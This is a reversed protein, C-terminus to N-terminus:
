YLNLPNIDFQINIQKLLEDRTIQNQAMDRCLKLEHEEKAKIYIVKRYSDKEKSRFAETPPLVIVSNRKLIETLRMAGEMVLMEDEHECVAVMMAGFPPYSMMKRYLREQRYFCEYDQSAASTIAYHEPQYTQIIALGEKRGRGARGAAQTLLQFTRESALYDGSFMSLDAALVGVLTVNPFDHGKVIMQTGVLIDAEGRAFAQFTEFHSNKRQFADRDARLIRASPFRKQLLEVVKQTGMGFAGIYKSGCEPCTKPAPIHYGCYHCQMSDQMNKHLTLSVDCHPCTIVKGCSRCSVFGAYGRRNLFLLIQEKKALRDEMARMLSRSFVSYNKAKLEERLDVIEAVAMRGEGSVRQKLHYIGYIGQRAQEYSVISPTASGLVVKGGCMDMRKKAVDVAHYKPTVDSKYAGDHEEDIIILGLRGFPAFLASRPGILIDIEGNKAQVYQDYREGESMKSNMVSVRRGFRRRFRGINQYTLSIEPILVIAQKGDAITREILEMYIETKGSGTVGCILHVNRSDMWISDVVHKQEPSLVVNNGVSVDAFPVRYDSAEGAEVMGHRILTKLANEPAPVYKKIQAESIWQDKPANLFVALVGARSVFRPMHSLKEFEKQADSVAICLRYVKKTGGRVQRKVNLVTKLAQARTCGYTQHMWDALRIMQAEVILADKKIEHIYKMKALDYDSEDSFGIVYGLVLRNGKGFPVMVQSGVSIKSLMEEPIRYQFVRDLAELSIDIIIDAYIM